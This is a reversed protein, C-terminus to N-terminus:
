TDALLLARHGLANGIAPVQRHVRRQALLVGVGRALLQGLVQAIRVRELALRDLQELGARLDRPEGLERPQELLVQLLRALM